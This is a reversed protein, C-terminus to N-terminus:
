HWLNELDLQKRGMALAKRDLFSKIQGWNAKKIMRPMPDSKADDFYSLARVAFAPFAPQFSYKKAAIEFLQVLSKQQLIFYLDVYDKRTGRSLIAALKMAGIEEIVAVQIKNILRPPVILPHQDLRFLSIGVSRFNAVFTGDKDWIIKLSPDDKLIELIAQRQDPGVAEASDSFFDLDVSFRHGIQLALGTGGALYFKSMFPLESILRYLERTENTLAEWHPQM